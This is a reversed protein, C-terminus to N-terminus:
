DAHLIGVAQGRDAGEVVLELVNVLSAIRQGPADALVALVGAGHVVEVLSLSNNTFRKGLIRLRRTGSGISRSVLAGLGFMGMSAMALEWRNSGSNVAANASGAGVWVQKRRDALHADDVVMQELYAGLDPGNLASEALSKTVESFLDVSAAMDKELKRVPVLAVDDVRIWCDEKGGIIGLYANSSSGLSTVAVAKLADRLESAHRVIGHTVRPLVFLRTRGRVHGHARAKNAELIVGVDVSAVPLICLSGFLRILVLNARVIGGRAVLPLVQELHTEGCTLSNNSQTQSKM